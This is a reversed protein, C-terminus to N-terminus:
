PTTTYTVTGFESEPHNVTDALGVATFSAKAWEDSILQLSGNSSLTCKHFEYTYNPGAPNDCVFKLAYYKNPDKLIRIEGASLAGGMFRALNEAALEDTEFTIQYETQVVIEQDKQKLGSRSSYHALKEMRPEIEFSPCNGLEVYEGHESGTFEAILVKGRGITLNDASPPTAM